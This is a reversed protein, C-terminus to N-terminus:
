PPVHGHAQLYADKNASVGWPLALGTDSFGGPGHSEAWGENVWETRGALFNPIVNDSPLKRSLIRIGRSAGGFALMGNGVGAATPYGMENSPWPLGPETYETGAYYQWRSWTLGGEYKWAEPYPNSASANAASWTNHFLTGRAGFTGDSIALHVWLSNNDLLLTPVCVQVEGTDPRVRRIQDMAWSGFILWFVGNEDVFKVLGEPGVIPQAQIAAM